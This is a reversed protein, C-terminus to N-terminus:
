VRRETFANGLSATGELFAEKQEGAVEGFCGETSGARMVTRCTVAIESSLARCNTWLCHRAATTAISDPEYANGLAVVPSRPGRTQSFALSSSWAGSSTFGAMVVEFHATKGPL